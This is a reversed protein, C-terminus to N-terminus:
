RSEDVLKKTIRYSKTVLDGKLLRLFQDDDEPQKHKFVYWVGKPTRQYVTGDKKRHAFCTKSRSATRKAVWVATFCLEGKPTASWHGAAYNSGVQQRTHAIFKLFPGFYGGGVVSENDWVWTKGYFMRHVERGTMAKAEEVIEAINGDKHEAKSDIASGVLLSTFVMLVRLM